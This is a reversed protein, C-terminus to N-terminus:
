KIDGGKFIAASRELEMARSGKILVSDGTKLVERMLIGAEAADNCRFVSGSLLGGAVASDAIDLAEYGVAILLDLPLAAAAEGVKRHLDSSYNGLEYMNGLVACMRGGKKDALGRLVELSALMSEPSANYCDEIVTIGSFEYINQRMAAPSYETLGKRISDEDIDHLLGACFAYAADLATHRGHTPIAIDRFERGDSAKLTFVAGDATDNFGIIRLFADKDDERPSVYYAGGIGALLPESGNLILKGDPALGDRIELKAKAINERSGLLGIHSTGINTIVAIDPEAIRSLNSIEGPASMGCEIVLAEDDQKLKLLVTPLGIENNFNGETKHTKYKRSMVSTLYEKTTTKGVSGTVAITFPNIERKIRRAIKGLAAATDEVLIFSGKNESPLSSVLAAAAGNELASQAFQNGDLREGRIAVFLMGPQADRSDTSISSIIADDGTLRGGCICALECASVDRYFEAFMRSKSQPTTKSTEM